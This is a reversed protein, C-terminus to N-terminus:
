DFSPVALMWIDLPVPGNLKLRFPDLLWDLPMNLLRDAPGPVTITVSLLPHVVDVENLIM